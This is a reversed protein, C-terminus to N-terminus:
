EPVELRLRSSKGTTVDKVRVDYHYGVKFTLTTVVNGFENPRTEVLTKKTGDASVRVVKFVHNAANGSRDWITLMRKGATVEGQYIGFGTPSYMVILQVMGPPPTPPLRQASADSVPTFPVGVWQAALALTYHDLDNDSLIAIPRDPSLGRVALAQGIRRVRDLMQAYSIRRWEGDPGRQAVQTREPAHRAWEELGAASWSVSM